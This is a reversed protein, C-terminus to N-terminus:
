GMGVSTVIGDDVALNFREPNYDRTVIFSDKDIRTVRYKAELLELVGRVLEYKKGVLQAAKVGAIM